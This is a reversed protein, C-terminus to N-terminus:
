QMCQNDAWEAANRSAARRAEVLCLRESRLKCNLATDLNLTAQIKGLTEDLRFYVPCPTALDAGVAMRLQNHIVHPVFLFLAAADRPINYAHLSIFGEVIIIRSLLM